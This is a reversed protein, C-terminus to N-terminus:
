ARESRNRRKTWEAPEGPGVETQTANGPPCAEDDEHDERVRCCGRKVSTEAVVIAVRSLASFPFQARILSLLLLRTHFLALVSSRPSSLDNSLYNLRILRLASIPMEPRVKALMKQYRMNPFSLFRSGETAIYM